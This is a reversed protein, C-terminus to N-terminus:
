GACRETYPKVPAILAQLAHTAGTVAVPRRCQFLASLVAEVQCSHPVRFVYVVIAQSVRPIRYFWGAKVQLIGTKDTFCCAYFLLTQV